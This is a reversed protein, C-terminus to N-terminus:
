VPAAAALGFRELEVAAAELSDSAHVANKMVDTGFDKRITGPDAKAPNTPGALTRVAAMANEGTVALAVVPSSQMFEEVEPYFPKGILHAYHQALVAAELAIMRCNTIELGAKEFRAIIEGIKHARMADPKILVCTTEM